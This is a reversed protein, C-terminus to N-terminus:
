LTSVPDKRITKIPRWVNIIQYRGKLLREAEDPLHHQVRQPGAKYSQDIHVRQVPGRLAKEADKADSGPQPRRITHDFIFIKSAGTSCIWIRSYSFDAVRGWPCRSLIPFLCNSVVGVCGEVPRGGGQLVEGQDGGRGGM